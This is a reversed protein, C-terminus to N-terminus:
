ATLNVHLASPASEPSEEIFPWARCHAIVRSYPRASLPRKTQATRSNTDTRTIADSRRYYKPMLRIRARNATCVSSGTPKALDAERYVRGQPSTATWPWLRQARSLTGSASRCPLFPLSRVLRMTCSRNRWSRPTSVHVITIDIRGIRGYVRKVLRASVEIHGVSPQTPVPLEELRGLDASVPVEELVGNM